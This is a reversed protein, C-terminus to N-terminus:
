FFLFLLALQLGLRIYLIIDPLFFFSWNRSCPNQYDDVSQLRARFSPQRSLLLVGLRLLLRRVRLFVDRFHFSFELINTIVDESEHVLVENM